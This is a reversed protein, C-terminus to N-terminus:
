THSILLYYTGGGRDLFAMNRTMIDMNVAFASRQKHYQKKKSLGAKIESTGGITCCIHFSAPWQCCFTIAGHCIAM